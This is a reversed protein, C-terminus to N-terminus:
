LWDADQLKDDTPEEVPLVEVLPLEVLPLELLPLEPLADDPKEPDPLWPLEPPGPLLPLTADELPALLAKPEDLLADELLAEDLLADELLAEDLLEDDHEHLPM